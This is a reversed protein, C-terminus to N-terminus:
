QPVAGNSEEITTAEGRELDLALQDVVYRVTSRQLIAMRRLLSLSHGRYFALVEQREQKDGIVFVGRGSLSGIPKGHEETLNKLCWRVLREDLQTAEALRRNTIANAKGVHEQLVDWVLAEEPSLQELLRDILTLQAM